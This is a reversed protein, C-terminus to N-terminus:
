IVDCQQQFEESPKGTLILHLGATKYAWIYDGKKEEKMEGRAKSQSKNGERRRGFASHGGYRQGSCM